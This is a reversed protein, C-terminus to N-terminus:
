SWVIWVVHFINCLLHLVVQAGRFMVTHALVNIFFLVVHDISQNLQALISKCDGDEMKERYM